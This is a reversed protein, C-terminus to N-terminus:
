MGPAGSSPAGTPAPVTGSVSATGSAELIVGGTSSGPKGL